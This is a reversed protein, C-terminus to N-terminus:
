GRRVERGVTTPVKKDIARIDSDTFSPPREPRPWVVILHLSASSATLLLASWMFTLAVSTDVASVVLSTIGCVAAAILLITPM